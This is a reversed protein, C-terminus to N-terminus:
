YWSWTVGDDMSCALKLNQNVIDYYSIAISSGVVEISTYEGVGNTDVTQTTWVGTDWIALKLNYNLDEFYSIYVKGASVAMSTYLGTIGQSDVTETSWNVGVNVSTAMKLNGNAADYYALRIIGPEVAISVYQGVNGSEVQVSPQWVGTYKVFKLAEGSLDYYGVYFNPTDAAIAAFQGTVPAGGGDLISAADWTSGGTSSIIAKLATNTVDYYAVAVTDPDTTGDVAVSTYQGVDGAEDLRSHDWTAGGNTSRAFRLDLYVSDYYSAYLATGVMALSAYQGVSGISDINDVPWTAGGDVSFVQRLSLNSVDYHVVFMTNADMALSTFQGVNGTSDLAIGYAAALLDSDLWQNNYAVARLTKTNSVAVPGTYITGYTASPLTGDLTYRITAGDTATTIRVLQGVAYTGAPPTAVPASVTGPIVYAAEAVASDTLGALYAVALVTMSGSILVPATYLTGNSSTPTSGDTTFRIAAEAPVSTMTVTQPEAYTGAGPVMLPTGAQGEIVYTGETVESDLYDALYAVAKLIATSSVQIPIGTYEAGYTSTPASGDLTYRISAGVTASSITVSQALAYSGPEPVLVPAEATNPVVVAACSGLVLLVTVLIAMGARRTIPNLM